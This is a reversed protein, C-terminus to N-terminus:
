ILAERGFLFQYHLKLDILIDVYIVRIFTRRVQNRYPYIFEASLEVYKCKMIGAPGSKFGYLKSGKAREQLYDLGFGFM